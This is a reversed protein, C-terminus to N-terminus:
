RDFRLKSGAISLRKRAATGVSQRFRHLREKRTARGADSRCVARTETAAEEIRDIPLSLPEYADRSQGPEQMGRVMLLLVPIEEILFAISM